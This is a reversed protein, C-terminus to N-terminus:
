INWDLIRAVRDRLYLAIKKAGAITPHTNDGQYDTSSLLPRPENLPIYYLQRDGASRLRRVTGKIWRRASPSITSPVPETCIIPIGPNHSRITKLLRAYGACFEDHTPPPQNYSFDNTGIAVIVADVPFHSQEWRLNDSAAQSYCFTWPYRDSTHVGDYPPKESYNHVVGEGSKALVSFDAQLMRALQPAYSMTGDEVEYFNDGTYRGSNMAGATISDGVFELRRKQAPQPPALAAGDDLEFGAFESIGARGETSRILLVEHIGAPLDHALLTHGAPKITTLPQGDISFRWYINEGSLEAALSTGSFRAKIYTAGYGSRYIGDHCDWRGFYQIEPAMATFKVSSFAPTSLSSLFFLLALFVKGGYPPRNMM